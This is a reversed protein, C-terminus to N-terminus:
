PEVKRRSHGTIFSVVRNTSLLCTCFRCRKNHAAASKKHHAKKSLRVYQSTSYVIVLYRHYLFPFASRRDVIRANSVSRRFFRNTDGYLGHDVRAQESKKRVPLVQYEYRYPQLSHIWSKILGVFSHPSIRQFLFTLYKECIMKNSVCSDVQQQETRIGDDDYDSISSNDLSVVVVIFFHGSVMPTKPPENLGM